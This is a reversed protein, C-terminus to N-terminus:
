ILASIAYPQFCSYVRFAYSQYYTIGYRIEAQYYTIAYQIEAFLKRGQIIKELSKLLRTLFTNLKENCIHIYPFIISFVIQPFVTYVYHSIHLSGIFKRSYGKVSFAINKFPITNM